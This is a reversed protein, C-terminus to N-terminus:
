NETKPKRNQTVLSFIYGCAEANAVYLLKTIM